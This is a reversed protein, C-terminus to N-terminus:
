WEYPAATDLFGRTREIRTLADTIANTITFKPQFGSGPM